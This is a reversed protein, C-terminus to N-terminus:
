ALRWVYVVGDYCKATYTRHTFRSLRALANHCGCVNTKPSHDFPCAISAPMGPDLMDCLAVFAAAKGRKVNYASQKQVAGRTKTGPRDRLVAMAHNLSRGLENPVTPSLFMATQRGYADASRPGTTAELTTGHEDMAGEFDAMTSNPRIDTKYGEMAAVIRAEARERRTPLAAIESPSLPLTAPDHDNVVPRGIYDAQHAQAYHRELWGQGKYAKSCLQCRWSRTKRTSIPHKM